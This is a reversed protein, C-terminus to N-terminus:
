FEISFLISFTYILINFTLTTLASLLVYGSSEFLLLLVRSFDNASTSMLNNCKKKIIFIRHKTQKNTGVTLMNHTTTKAVKKKKPKQRGRLAM